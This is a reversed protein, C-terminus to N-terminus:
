LTIPSLIMSFHCLLVRPNSICFGFWVLGVLWGFLCVFFGRVFLFGLDSNVLVSCSFLFLFYYYYHYNYIKVFRSSCYSQEGGALGHGALAEATAARQSIGVTKHTKAHHRITHSMRTQTLQGPETVEWSRKGGLGKQQCSVM